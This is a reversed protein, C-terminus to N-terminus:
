LDDNSAAWLRWLVLLGYLILGLLGSLIGIVGDDMGQRTKREGGRDMLGRRMKALDARAMLWAIIGTPLALLGTVACCCAGIGFALSVRGLFRVFDGRHPECDLRMAGEQEWPRDEDAVSM